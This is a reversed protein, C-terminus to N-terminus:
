RPRWGALFREFDRVATPYLARWEDIVGDIDDCDLRASLAHRLHAFYAELPAVDSRGHLLYAVDVIGPGHGTYQFDVAAVLPGPAFCFNADKADGHLLTHHRAGALRAALVPAEALLAADRINGLEDRRTDLHWYTGTPWLEAFREGLFRAHFSALWALCADLEAPRADDSRGTFGAADLDELVLTDGELGPLVPVRCTHDFRSAPGQYFAREVAYPRLKREFGADHHATAPPHVIKAVAPTGNALRVRWLEGYGGWLTQVLEVRKM